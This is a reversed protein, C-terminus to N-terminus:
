SAVKTPSAAVDPNTESSARTSAPLTFYFRSGEGAIGSSEVWICGGMAEVFQKSLYLGLGTGRVSGVLDRKLRVFKEFLLPIDSPPIGPGTDTVCIRVLQDEITGATGSLAASVTVSTHLPSYKFANSLLNLLVQMVYQRDARVTLAEPIDVRMQYAQRKQPEFFDLVEWVVRALPLDAFQPAKGQLNGQIADLVNNVLLQLEECGHIVQKIFTAQTAADLQENYEQLLELYGHMATLPTRLEHNVNQIFQDKLENLQRQQEYAIAVQTAQQELQTNAKSLAENKLHLEQQILRLQKNASITERIAFYQRVLILGVLVAGAIYVGWKLTPQVPQYQVYVCLAGVAPVLVYPLFSLWGQPFDLSADQSSEEGSSAHRAMILNLALAALGYLMYGTAWGADTVSGLSTGIQLLRYDYTSDAFVNAVLGLSLIIVVPRLIVDRSRTSLLILCSILVLDGLPYADGVIQALLTSGGALVTPGLIFYWSFAFVGTMIVLGDLFIRLHAALPLRSRTLLLVALLLSPYASLYAADELSPFPTQNLSQFYYIFFSEGISQSIIALGLLIPVWRLTRMAPSSDIQAKGHQLFNWLGSFCFPLMLLPCAAIIITEVGVYFHLSGPKIILWTLLFGNIAVILGISWWLSRMGQRNITGLM